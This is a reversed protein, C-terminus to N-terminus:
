AIKKIVVITKCRPCKIDLAVNKSWLDFLRQKCYPCKVQEPM